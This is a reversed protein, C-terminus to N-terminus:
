MRRSLVEVDPSQALILQTVKGTPGPAVLSLDPTIKGHQDSAQRAKPSARSGPGARIAIRHHKLARSLPPDVRRENRFARITPTDASMAAM